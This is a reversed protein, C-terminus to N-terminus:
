KTQRGHKIQTTHSLSSFSYSSISRERLNSCLGNSGDSSQKKNIKFEISACTKMHNAPQSYKFLPGTYSGGRM